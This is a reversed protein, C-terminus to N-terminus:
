AYEIHSAVSVGCRQGGVEVRTYRCGEGVGVPVGKHHQCGIVSVLRRDSRQDLATGVDIPAVISPLSRQCAGDEFVLRRDHLQQQSRTGIRERARRRRELGCPEKSLVPECPVQLSMYLPPTRSFLCPGLKNVRDAAPFLLSMSVLEPPGAGHAGSIGHGVTTGSQHNHGPLACTASGLGCGARATPHRNYSPCRTVTALVACCRASSSLLLKRWRRRSARSAPM